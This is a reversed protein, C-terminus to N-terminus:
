GLLLKPPEASAACADGKITAYLSAISLSFKGAHGSTGLGLQTMDALHKTLPPGGPVPKGRFSVKFASRLISLDCSSFTPIYTPTPLHCTPLCSPLCSPPFASWPVRCDNGCCHESTLAASFMSQSTTVGKVGVSMTFDGTPLGSGDTLHLGIHTSTSADPFVQSDKTRLTCFGPAGLSQVIKVEGSWVGVKGEQAFTSVSAGGMVPDNVTEWTRTSSASGDFTALPLDHFPAAVAAAAAAHVCKSGDWSNDCYACCGMHAPELLSKCYASSATQETVCKGARWEYGCAPCCGHNLEVRDCFGADSHSPLQDPASFSLAALIGVLM